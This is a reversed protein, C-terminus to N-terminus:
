AQHDSHVVEDHHDGHVVEDHHDSPISEKQTTFFPRMYRYDFKEFLTMRDVALDLPVLAQEESETFKIRSIVPLAEIKLFSMLPMTSGGMFIITFLVVALTTTVLENRYPSDLTICLTFAIAGRLGSFWM